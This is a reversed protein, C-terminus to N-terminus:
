DVASCLHLDMFVTNYEYPSIDVSHITETYQPTKIGVERNMNKRVFALLEELTNIEIVWEQLSTSRGRSTLQRASEGVAAIFKRTAGECPPGKEDDMDSSVVFEM